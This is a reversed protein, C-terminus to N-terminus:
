NQMKDDMQEVTPTINPLTFDLPTIRAEIMGVDYSANM